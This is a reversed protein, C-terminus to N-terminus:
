SNNCLTVLDLQNRDDGFLGHDCPSQPKSPKMPAEAQRQLAAGLHPETSPIALQGPLDSLGQIPKKHARTLAMITAKTMAEKKSRFPGCQAVARGVKDVVTAWYVTRRTVPHPRSETTPFFENM